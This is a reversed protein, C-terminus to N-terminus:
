RGRRRLAALGLVALGAPLAAPTPIAVTLSLMHSGSVAEDWFLARDVLGRFSQSGAPGDGIHFVDGTDFAGAAFSGALLGDIYIEVLGGASGDGNYVFGVDHWEGLNFAVGTDYAVGGFVAAVTGDSDIGFQWRNPRSLISEFADGDLVRQARAWASFTSNTALALHLPSNSDNWFPYGDRTDLAFGDIGPRNAIQPDITYTAYRPTNFVNHGNQAPDEAPTLPASSYLGGDPVALGNTVEAGQVNGDADAYRFNWDAIPLQSGNVGRTFSNTIDADSLEHNHIRLENYSANATADGWQSRGLWVNTDILQSLNYATNITSRYVGDRFLRIQTEGSPGGNDDITMAIHFQQNLTYPAMTDNVGNETGVKFAVRDQTSTTGRTWSMFLNNNTDVGFDFIRSWNQISHQTAWVEITADAFGSILGSPLSVYDSSGKAGGTLTVQGGGVTANNAGGEAITGHAAGVSDVLVTGSGGSESFSYRHQLAADARHLLGGTAIGLMVGMAVCKRSGNANM